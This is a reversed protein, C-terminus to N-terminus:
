KCKFLAHNHCLFSIDSILLIAKLVNNAKNVMVYMHASLVHVSFKPQMLEYEYSKLLVCIMIHKFSNIDIIKM